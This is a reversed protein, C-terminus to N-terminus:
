ARPAQQQLAWCEDIKVCESFMAKANGYIAPLRVEATVDDNAPPALITM